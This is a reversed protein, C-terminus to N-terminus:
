RKRRFTPSERHTAFLADRWAVLDAFESALEPTHSIEITAPGMAIYRGDVPKVWQLSLAMAIDAYGFRELLTARGNLGARLEHLGERMTAVLAAEGAEDRERAGVYKRQVYRTGMTALFTLSPRLNFEIFPPLAERLAREDRLLRQVYLARGAGLVRESVANWRAIEAECGALFLPEGHGHKEAHQAIAFSDSVAGGEAFLVPVSVRGTLRGTRLRLWPEGLMPTYEQYSYIVHRADLAWRAKQTWPSYSLGLLTPM